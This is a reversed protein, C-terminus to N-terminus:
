RSELSGSLLLGAIEIEALRLSELADLYALQNNAYTRQVTLLNVFGIEGLEYSQRTLNLTEEAKPLIQNRFRDVQAAANSYREFVPALRQGLGLEIKRLERQAAALEYRAEGIGGPNKNWIPIPLAVIVAGNPDGGAGNDRWNFLGGVTVNPRPEILQRQLNCRAREIKALVAAIEPSQSQIQALSEEFVLDNSIQEIDGDLPQPDLNAQGVLAAIERWIALQANVANQYLINASEVELEAQLLDTRSVERARLLDSAIQVGKKGIEVLQRTLEVQREVRLARVYALRVDTLVRQREAQLEQSRRRAEHSAISRDLRLKQPVVLEQSFAVGYQEAIGDSGLQQFDIGAEPNPSLGAQVARWRAAQVLAAAQQVSPSNALAMSELSALTMPQLTTDVIMGLDATVDTNVPEIVLSHIPDPPAATEVVQGWAPIGTMAAAVVCGCALARACCGFRKPDIQM